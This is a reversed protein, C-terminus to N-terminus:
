LSVSSLSPAGLERKCRAVVISPAFHARHRLVSLETHPFQEGVIIAQLASGFPARVPEDAKDVPLDWLVVVQRYESESEWDRNKTFYLEMLWRRDTQLDAIATELGNREIEDLWLDYRMPRDVYRINGFTWMDGNGHRTGQDVALNLDAKDFVVCAGRHHDAYQEWMRSRAWGRHFLGDDEDSPTRDVTHCGLRAGGRLLRDAERREHEFGTQSTGALENEFVNPIWEQKERPDNTYRYPSLWFEGGDLMLALKEATTYHFLLDDFPDSPIAVDLDCLERM